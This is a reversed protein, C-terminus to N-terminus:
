NLSYPPVSWPDKPERKSKYRQNAWALLSIVIGGVVSIVLVRIPHPALLLAFVAAALAFFMPLVLVEKWTM